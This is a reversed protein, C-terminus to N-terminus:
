GLWKWGCSCYISIRDICLLFYVQPVDGEENILARPQLKKQAVVVSQGEDAGEEEKPEERPPRIQRREMPTSQLNNLKAVKQFKTRDHVFGLTFDEDPNWTESAKKKAANTTTDEVCSADVYVNFAAPAVFTFVLILDQNQEGAKFLLKPTLSLSKKKNFLRSARVSCIVFSYRLVIGAFTRSLHVWDM